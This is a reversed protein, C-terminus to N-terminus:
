DLTYNCDIRTELYGIGQCYFCPEVIENVDCSTNLFTWFGGNNEPIGTTQYSSAEVFRLLGSGNCATCIKRM